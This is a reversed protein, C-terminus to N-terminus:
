CAVIVAGAVLLTLGFVAVAAITIGRVRAHRATREAAKRALQVCEEGINTGARAHGTTWGLFPWEIGFVDLSYVVGALPVALLALLGAKLVPSLDPQDDFLLKLLFTQAALIISDLRLMHATKSDIIGLIDYLWKLAPEHASRSVGDPGVMERIAALLHDGQQKVVDEQRM